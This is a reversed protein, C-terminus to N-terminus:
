CRSVLDYRLPPDSLPGVMADHRVFEPRTNLAPETFDACGKAALSVAIEPPRPVNADMRPM